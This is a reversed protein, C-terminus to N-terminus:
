YSLKTRVELKQIRDIKLHFSFVQAVRVKTDRDFGCHVIAMKM